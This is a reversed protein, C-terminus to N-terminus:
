ITTATSGHGRGYIDQVVGLRGDHDGAGRRGATGTRLRIYVM